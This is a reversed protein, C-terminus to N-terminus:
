LVEKILEIWKESTKDPSFREADAIACQAMTIRKNTNNALDIINNAMAEFDGNEIIIGNRNDIIIDCLSEYSNMAIPVVGFQQAETLTLGWGEFTSTMLFIAAKKYFFAPKQRGWFRVREINLKKAYQKLFAADSGEGVIDLCWDPSLRKEAISWSRLALSIRKEREELRSVILVGTKKRISCTSEVPKYKYTLPNGVYRLKKGDPLRWSNIASKEFTESLLVFRNCLSYTERIYRHLVYMTKFKWLPFLLIRLLSMVRERVSGSIMYHIMNELSYYRKIAVPSSHYCAICPIETNTKKLQRLFHPFAGNQYIIIDVENKFLFHALKPYDNAEDSLTSLFLSRYNRKKFENMLIETVHEVGGLTKSPPNDWVFLIVIKKM